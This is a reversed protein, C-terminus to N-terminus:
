SIQHQRQRGPICPAQNSQEQPLLEKPSRRMKYWYVVAMCQDIDCLETGPNRRDFEQSRTKAHMVMTNSLMKLTVSWRGLMTQQWPQCAGVTLRDPRQAERQLLFVHIM